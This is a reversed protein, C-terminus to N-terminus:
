YFEVKAGEEIKKRDIMGISDILYVRFSGSGEKRSICKESAEEGALGMIVLSILASNFIDERNSGCYCAILSGLMCGTGTIKSMMMNGNRILATREGDSVIDIAGTAVIVTKLSQALRKLFEINDKLNEEGVIDEEQVDVGGLNKANTALAKIESINGKILSFKVKELLTKVTKNRLESAGLGVPDLIVPINLKNAKEGAKVMAGVTRSNLTGINIYLASSITVIEEVESVDDAMLPAGGAALIINAVDNVTVYNTISHVLPPNSKMKEYANIM